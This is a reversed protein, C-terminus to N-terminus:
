KCSFSRNICFFWFRVLLDAIVVANAISIEELRTILEKTEIQSEKAQFCYLNLSMFGNGIQRDKIIFGINPQYDFDIDCFHEQNQLLIRGVKNFTKELYDFDSQKFDSIQNNKKLSQFYNEMEKSLKFKRIQLNEM